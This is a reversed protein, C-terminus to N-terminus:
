DGSLVIPLTPSQSGGEDEITVGFAKAVVGKPLQPMIVSANGRLDPLFTGAPIPDRGDAPILWLEYTKFPLLPELNSATFILTGKEPLYTTRGQPAAKVPTQTLTVRMADQDTLAQILARGKQADATLSQMEGAQKAVASQLVDRERYLDVVTVTLGAAVAWGVWSVWPLIKSGSASRAVYEDEVFLRTAMPSGAQANAARDIPIIKKERGVQTMLRQRSSAPPSHMESTMALGALDGRLQAALEACGECEGLHSAIFAAESDPLLHMAFLALDEQAIHNNVIM